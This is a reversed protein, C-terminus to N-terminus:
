GVAVVCVRSGTDPAGNEALKFEGLLSPAELMARLKTDGLKGTSKVEGWAFAYLASGM